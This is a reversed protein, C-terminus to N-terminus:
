TRDKTKIVEEDYSAATEQGPEVILFRDSSWNGEVLDVLLSNNGDFRKYAWQHDDAIKKVQAEYEIPTFGPWNIFTATNYNKLMDKEMDLLYEVTDEDEFKEMYERRLRELKLEDENIGLELWGQSYIYSDGNEKHFDAYAEKSGMLLTACDHARPIVLKYKESHLGLIANSCLGYVIGIADIDNLGLDNTYRSSNKDIADIEEQIISRLIEPTQHYDQRLLTVDVTNKTTALVSALERQLIKCGILKIRM